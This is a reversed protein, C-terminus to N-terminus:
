TLLLTKAAAARAELAAHAVVARGAWASDVGDGASIVIGAVGNGPVYPPRIPFYDVGLGYRIMVDVLLVDAASTRVVVQGPGAVPDPVQRAALVEPGGFRSVEVVLM